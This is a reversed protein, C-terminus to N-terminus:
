GISRAVEAYTRTTGMPIARLAQLFLAAPVCDCGRRHALEITFKLWGPPARDRAGWNAHEGSGRRIQARPYEQRLSATLDSDRDGLYVASIGRDTGAVLM